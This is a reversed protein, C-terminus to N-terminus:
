KSYDAALKAPTAGALYRMLTWLNRAGRRIWGSRRYRDASTVATANLGTLKGKLLLALAVDEMLPQDPYGGVAQYLKLTILLGQDGYPLGFRSRMNAWGAVFRAPLGGHDFRLKFWGAQQGCLHAIVPDTWGPALRTDAHLVLLWDAQAKACGRRLQGGRSADGSVVQAGWAQALTLTADHSGGDTVILERILGADLGEMLATLCNSLGAEANLTPIVVSIPARM